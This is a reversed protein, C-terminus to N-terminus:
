AFKNLNLIKLYHFKLLMKFYVDWTKQFPIGANSVLSGQLRIMMMALAM